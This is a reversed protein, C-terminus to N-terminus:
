DIFQNYSEREANTKYTNYMDEFEDKKYTRAWEYASLPADQHKSNYENIQNGYRKTFYQEMKNRAELLNQQTRLTKGENYMKDKMNRRESLYAKRAEFDLLDRQNKAALVESNGQHIAAANNDAVKRNYESAQQQDATRQSELATLKDEKAATLQAILKNVQDQRSKQDAIRYAPDTSVAARNMTDKIASGYYRDIVDTNYIRNPTNITSMQKSLALETARKANNKYAKSNSRLTDLLQARSEADPGIPKELFDKVRDLFTKDYVGGSIDKNGTSPDVVEGKKNHWKGTKADYIPAEGEEDEAQALVDALEANVQGTDAEPSNGDVPATTDTDPKEPDQVAEEPNENGEVKAEDTNLGNVGKLIKGGKKFEGMGDDGSPLVPTQDFSDEDEYYYDPFEDRQYFRSGPQIQETSFNFLAPSYTRQVWFPANRYYRQALGHYPNAANYLADQM